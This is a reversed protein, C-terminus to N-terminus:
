RLLNMIITKFFVFFCLDPNMEMIPFGFTPFDVRIFAKTPLSSEIIV